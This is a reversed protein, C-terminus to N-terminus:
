RRHQHGIPQNMGLEPPNANDISVPVLLVFDYGLVHTLGPQRQPLGQFRKLTKEPDSSGNKSVAWSFEKWLSQDGKSLRNVIAEFDKPRDTYMPKIKDPVNLVKESVGIMITAIMVAEPKVRHLVQLAENLDDFRADRNRHATIVSKNEVCIRLKELDPLQSGQKPEGMLLDIKRKRAGPTPINLWHSIQHSDLDEQIAKCSKALDKLIGNSM